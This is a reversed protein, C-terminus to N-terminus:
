ARAVPPTSLLKEIVEGEVEAKLSELTEVVTTLSGILRVLAEHAEVAHGQEFAEQSASVISFIAQASLANIVQAKDAGLFLLALVAYENQLERIIVLLKSLEVPM